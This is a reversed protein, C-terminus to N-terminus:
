VDQGLALVIRVLEAQRRAGTKGYARKLHTRVTEVTVRLDRAIDPVAMGEALRAAVRAEARTLGHQEQLAYVLSPNEGVVDRQPPVLGLLDEMLLDRDDYREREGFTREPAGLHVRYSAGHTGIDAEVVADPLRMLRPIARLEGVTGRFFFRCGEFAPPLIVTLHLEAKRQREITFRMHPFAHQSAVWGLRYFVTPRRVAGLMASLYRNVRVYGEGILEIDDDSLDAGARNLFRALEDWGVRLGFRPTVNALALGDLAAATDVGGRELSERMYGYLLSPVERM